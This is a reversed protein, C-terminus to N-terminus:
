GAFKNAKSRNDFRPIVQLNNAVHLGCVDKNVLPIIHDVEHKIGTIETMYAAVAYVADIAKLDAWVPTAQLKRTRRKAVKATFKHPNAKYYAQQYEDLAKKAEASNDLRAKRKAQIQESREAYWNKLREKERAVVEPKSRYELGRVRVKEANKLYWLRQREAVEAANLKNYASTRAIVKEANKQYYEKQYQANCLKCVTGPKGRSKSFQELPKVEGCKSCKKADPTVCEHSEM